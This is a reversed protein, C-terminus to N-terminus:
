PAPAIELWDYRLALHRVDLSSPNVKSPQRTEAYTFDVFNEGNRLLNQAIPLAHTGFNVAATFSGLPKGNVQATVTLPAIAGLAAARVVLRYATPLPALWAAIRSSPADSWTTTDEDGSFGAVLNQRAEHSGIDLFVNSDLPRLSLYDIAFHGGDVGLRIANAGAQLADRPIRVFSPSYHQAPVLSGPRAGNIEVSIGSSKMNSESMAVVGLVYDTGVPRLRVALEGAPPRLRAASRGGIVDDGSWGKTLAARATATGIDLEGRASHPDIRLEDIALGGTPIVSSFELQNRGSALLNEPLTLKLVSWDTPIPLTGVDAGNMTLKVTHPGIGPATRALLSLTVGAPDPYLPLAM